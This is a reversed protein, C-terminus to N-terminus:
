KRMCKSLDTINKAARICKMQSELTTIRMDFDDLMKKKELANWIGIVMADEKMKSSKFANIEEICENADLSKNALQLCERTRKMYDLREPLLAKQREYIYVGLKNLYNQKRKKISVSNKKSIEDLMKSLSTSIAIAGRKQKISTKFLAIKRVPFDPISCHETSVNIDEKVSFAKKQYSIGLFEKEVLLPIGRYLCIRVGEKAWLHCRKGAIVTEGHQTMGLTMNELSEGRPIPRELIMEQDYDVTLQQKNDHKICKSFTEVDEFAGSTREETEEEVLAIQGWKRFRLKGEGSITVNLDPALIGGGSIHYIVMGSKLHYEETSHDAAFAFLTGAFILLIGIKIKFYKSM